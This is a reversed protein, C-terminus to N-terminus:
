SDNEKHLVLLCDLKCPLASCETDKALFTVFEKKFLLVDFCDCCHKRTRKMRMMPNQTFGHVCRTHQLISMFSFFFFFLNSFGRCFWDFVPLVPGFLVIVPTTWAARLVVGVSTTVPLSALTSMSIWTQLTHM